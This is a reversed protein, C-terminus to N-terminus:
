AVDYKGAAREVVDQLFTHCLNDCEGLGGIRWNPGGKAGPEFYAPMPIRCKLCLDGATKAFERTLIDHLEAASVTKRSM